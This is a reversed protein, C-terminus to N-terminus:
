QSSAIWGMPAHVTPVEVGLMETVRNDFKM